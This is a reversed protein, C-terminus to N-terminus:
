IIRRHLGSCREVCSNLIPYFEKYSLREIPELGNLHATVLQQLQQLAPLDEAYFAEPAALQYLLNYRDALFIGLEYRASPSLNVIGQLAKNIDVQNFLAMSSYPTGYDPVHQHLERITLVNEDTLNELIGVLKTKYKAKLTNYTNRFYQLLQQEKDSTAKDYGSGNLVQAYALYAEYLDDQNGTAYFISYISDELLKQNETTLPIDLSDLKALISVVHALASPNTIKGAKLEAIVDAYTQNFEEPRLESYHILKHVPSENKESTNKKVATMEAFAKMGKQSLAYSVNHGYYDNSYSESTILDLAIFQSLVATASAETLTAETSLTASLKSTITAVSVPSLLTPAITLFIEKWTFTKHITREEEGSFIDPNTKYELTATEDGFAWQNAKEQLEAKLAKNEAQLAAYQEATTQDAPLWGTRPTDKLAKHLSTIVNAALKNKDKWFSCMRSKVLETFTKLKTRKDPDDEFNVTPLHSIDGHVFGLCPVGKSYALEYEKQTYSIGTAEEISGYKGAVIIVYYDCQPIISEIVEWQTKNSATFYEMCVPIFGDKLLATIVTACEEKLDEYTSSVFVQYKKEAM